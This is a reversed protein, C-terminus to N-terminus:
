RHRVQLLIGKGAEPRMKKNNNKKKINKLQQQHHEKM